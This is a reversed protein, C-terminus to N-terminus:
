SLMELLPWCIDPFLTPLVEKLTVVTFTSFLRINRRSLELRCFSRAVNCDTIMTTFFNMSVTPTYINLYLCDENMYRVGKSAGVYQVPQPCAPGFDVADWISWARKPRPPKVIEWWLLPCIYFSNSRSRSTRNYHIYMGQFPRWESTAYRLPDRSFYQHNAM